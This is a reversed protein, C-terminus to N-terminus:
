PPRYQLATCRLLTNHGFAHILLFLRLLFRRFGELLLARCLPLLTLAPAASPDRAAACSRSGVFRPSSTASEALPHPDRRGGPRHRRLVTVPQAAGRGSTAPRATGRLPGSRGPHADAAARKGIELRRCLGTASPATPRTASLDLEPVVGACRRPMAASAKPGLRARLPGRRAAPPTAPLRDSRQAARDPPVLRAEPSCSRRAHRNDPDSPSERARWPEPQSM